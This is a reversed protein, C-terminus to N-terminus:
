VVNGVKDRSAFRPCICMKLLNLGVKWNHFDRLNLRPLFCACDTVIFHSHFFMINWCIVHHLSDSYSVFRRANEVRM